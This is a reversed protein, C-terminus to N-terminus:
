INHDKKFAELSNLDPFTFSGVGPINFNLGSVTGKSFDAPAIPQNTTAKSGGQNAIFNDLAAVQAKNSLASLSLRSPDPIISDILKQVGADLTGLQKQQKYEATIQGKLGQLMAKNGPTNASLLNLGKLSDKYQGLLTNLKNTGSEQASALVQGRIKQPVQTLPIQGLQYATTFASIDDLGSAPNNRENIQSQINQRQLKDTALSSRKLELDLQDEESLPANALRELGGKGVGMIEEAFALQRPNGALMAQLQQPTYKNYQDLANQKFKDRYNLMQTQYNLMRDFQSDAYARDKEAFNMMRDLNNAKSERLAVLNNYNKLLVKNRSLALAQVQSDTGFGGAQEVENRIDDETGDIITQADIIEEDLQDLGSKKFLKNYTDMLSVKQNEPSFYDTYQEQLATWGKDESLQMDVESMDPAEPPISAQIQGSAEGMSPPVSMGQTSAFGQQYKQALSGLTARDTIGKSAEAFSQTPAGLTSTGVQPVNERQTEPLQGSDVLKNTAINDPTEPMEVGGDPLDVIGLRAKRQAASENREGSLSTKGSSARESAIRASSDVSSTGKSKTPTTVTTKGKYRITAM